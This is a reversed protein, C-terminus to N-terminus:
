YFLKKSCEESCLPPEVPLGRCCCDDGNCCYEPEYDFVEKGCIICQFIVKSDEISYKTDIINRRELDHNIIYKSNIKIGCDM